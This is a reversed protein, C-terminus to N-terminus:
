KTRKIDFRGETVHVIEGDNNMADFNFTGSVVSGDYKFAMHGLRLSDTIYEVGFGSQSYDSYKGQNQGNLTYSTDQSFDILLTVNSKM